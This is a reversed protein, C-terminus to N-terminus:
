SYATSITQDATSATSIWPATSDIAAVTTVGGDDDSEPNPNCAWQEFYCRDSPCTEEDLFNNCPRFVHFRTCCRIPFLCLWCGNM